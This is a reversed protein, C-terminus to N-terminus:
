MTTTTTTTTRTLPPPRPGTQIAYQEAPLGFADWGPLPQCFSIYASTAYPRNNPLTPTIIGM